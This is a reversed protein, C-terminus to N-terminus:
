GSIITGLYEVVLETLGLNSRGTVGATGSVSNYLLNGVLIAVDDGAALNVEWVFSPWVDTGPNPDGVATGTFGRHTYVSAPLNTVTGTTIDAFVQYEGRSQQQDGSASVFPCLCFMKLDEWDWKPTFRLRYRGATIAILTAVSSRGPHVFKCGAEPEVDLSNFARNTKTFLPAGVSSANSAFAISPFDCATACNAVAEAGYNYTWRQTPIPLMPNAPIVVTSTISAQPNTLRVKYEVDIFGVLASDTVGITSFYVRGADYSPLNVVNTKRVLLKKHVKNSIDFSLNSHVSGDVSYMNRLEQFTTPVSGDPNPEYAFAALGPTLTSCATRFRFKLQLIEYNDFNQAIEPLWQGLPTGRSYTKIGPQLAWNAFVSFQNTGTVNIGYTETHTVVTGAGAQVTKPMRAGSKQVVAVAESQPSAKPRPVNPKKKGQKQDKAKNKGSM